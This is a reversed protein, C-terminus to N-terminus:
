FETSAYKNSRAEEQARMQEDEKARALAKAKVKAEIKEQAQAKAQTQAQAQAAQAQAQKQNGVFQETLIQNTISVNNKSFYNHLKIIILIFITVIIIGILYHLFDFIDM